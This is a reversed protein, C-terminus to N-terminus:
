KKGFITIAFSMMLTIFQVVAVQYVIETPEEPIGYEVWYWSILISIAVVSLLAQLILRIM